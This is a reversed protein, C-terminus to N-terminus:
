VERALLAMLMHADSVPGRSKPLDQTVALKRGRTALSKHVGGILGTAVHHYFWRERLPLARLAKLDVQEVVGRATAKAYAKAKEQVGLSAALQAILNVHLMNRRAEKLHLKELLILAAECTEQCAQAQGTEHLAQGHYFARRFLGNFQLLPADFIMGVALRRDMTAGFNIYDLTSYKLGSKQDKEIHLREGNIVHNAVWADTPPLPMIEPYHGNPQAMSAKGYEYEEVERYAEHMRKWLFFLRLHSNNQLHFRVDRAVIDFDDVDKPQPTRIRTVPITNGELGLACLRLWDKGDVPCDVTLAIAQARYAEHRTVLDERMFPAANLPLYAKMRLAMGTAEALACTTVKRGYLARPKDKWSEFQAELDNAMAFHDLAAQVMSALRSRMEIELWGRCKADAASVWSMALVGALFHSYALPNLFSRPSHRLRWNTMDEIFELIGDYTELVESPKVDGVRYCLQPLLKHAKEWQWDFHRMTESRKPHKLFEKSFPIPATKTKPM